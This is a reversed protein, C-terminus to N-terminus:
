MDMAAKVAANLMFVHFRGNEDRFFGFTSEKFHWESETAVQIKVTVCSDCDLLFAKNLLCPFSVLTMSRLNWSHLPVNPSKNNWPLPSDQIQIARSVLNGQTIIYRSKLSAFYLKTCFFWKDQESQDQFYCNQLYVVYWQPVNDNYSIFFVTTIHCLCCHKWSSSKM